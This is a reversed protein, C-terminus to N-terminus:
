FVAADLGGAREAQRDLEALDQAGRVLDAHDVAVDLGVVDHDAVAIAHVEEVEARAQQHGAKVLALTM